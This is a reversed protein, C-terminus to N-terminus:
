SCCVTRTLIINFALEFDNMRKITTMLVLANILQKARGELGVTVGVFVAVSIGVFVAIGVDVTVNAGVGDGIAITV